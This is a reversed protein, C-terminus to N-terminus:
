HSQLLVIKNIRSYMSLPLRRRRKVCRSLNKIIIDYCFLITDSEHLRHQSTMTPPCTNSIPFRQPCPFPSPSFLLPPSWYALLRPGTHIPIAGCAFSPNWTLLLPEPVPSPIELCFPTDLPNDLPNHMCRWHHWDQIYRALHSYIMSLKYM